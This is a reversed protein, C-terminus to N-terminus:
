WLWDLGWFAAKLAFSKTKKRFDGQYMESAAPVNQM